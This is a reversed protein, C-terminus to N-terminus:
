GFWELALPEVDVDVSPEIQRFQTYASIVSWRMEVSVDTDDTGHRDINNWEYLGTGLDLTRVLPM